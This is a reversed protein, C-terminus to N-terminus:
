RVTLSRVFGTPGTLCPGHLALGGMGALAGGPPWLEEGSGQEAGGYGLRGRHSAGRQIFGEVGGVRGPLHAALCLPEGDRAADKRHRTGCCGALTRQLSSLGKRVQVLRQLLRDAEGNSLVLPGISGKFKPCAHVCDEARTM